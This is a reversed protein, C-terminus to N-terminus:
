GQVSQSSSHGRAARGRRSRIGSGRARRVGRHGRSSTTSPQPAESMREPPKNEDGISKSKSKAATTEKGKEPNKVCIASVSAAAAADDEELNDPLICVNRLTTPGRHCPKPIASPGLNGSNM